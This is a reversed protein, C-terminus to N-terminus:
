LRESVQNQYYVARSPVFPGQPLATPHLVTPPAAPPSRPPVRPQSSPSASPRMLGPAEHPQHPRAGLLAGPPELGSSGTM